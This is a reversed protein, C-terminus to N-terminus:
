VYPWANEWVDGLMLSLMQNYPDFLKQLKMRTEEKMPAFSKSTEHVKKESKVKTEEIGIFDTIPKWNVEKTMENPLLNESKMVLLNMTENSYNDKVVHYKEKIWRYLQLYYMGRGILADCINLGGTKEYGRGSMIGFGQTQNSKKIYKLWRQDREKDSSTWFTDNNVIGVDTLIAIDHEVCVEFTINNYMNQKSKLKMEYNMKYASYAREVPDRLLMIVKSWPVITKMRKPVYPDFMYLPTKEFTLLLSTSQNNKSHRQKEMRKHARSMPSQFHQAIYESRITEIDENSINGNNVDSINDILKCKVCNRDFYHPENAVSPVM